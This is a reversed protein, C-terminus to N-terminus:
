CKGGGRPLEKYRRVYEDLSLFQGTLPCRLPEESVHLCAQLAVLSPGCFHDKGWMHHVQLGPPPEYGAIKEWSLRHLYRHPERSRVWYGKANRYCRGFGEVFAVRLGRVFQEQISEAPDGRNGGHAMHKPSWRFNREGKLSGIRMLTTKESPM